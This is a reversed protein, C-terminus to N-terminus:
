WIWDIEGPWSHVFIRLARWKNSYPKVSASTLMPLKGVDSENELNEGCFWKCVDLSGWALM